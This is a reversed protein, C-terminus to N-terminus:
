PKITSLCFEEMAIVNISNGRFGYRNLEKVISDYRHMDRPMICGTKEYVIQALSRPMDSDADKSKVAYKREYWDPIEVPKLPQPPCDEEWFEDDLEDYGSCGWPLSLIVERMLGTCAGYLWPLDSGQEILYLLAFCMGYCDFAPLPPLANLVNETFVDVYESLKSAGAHSMYYAFVGKRKLQEKYEEALEQNRDDMDHLRDIESMIHVFEAQESYEGGPRNFSSIVSYKENQMTPRALLPNVIPAKKPEKKKHKFKAREAEAARVLKDIKRQQDNILKRHENVKLRVREAEEDLIKAGAFFRDVWAWFCETFQQVAQDIKEQPILALLKEFAQRSPVDAHDKGEAVLRSTYVRHDGHGNDEMPAIDRNRYHLVYEVSVILDDEYCCDWVDIQFLDDLLRDDTPLLKYLEKDDIGTEM